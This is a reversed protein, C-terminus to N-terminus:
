GLYLFRETNTHALMDKEELSFAETEFFHGMYAGYSKVDQLNIMFDTGYIVHEMIVRREQEGYSDIFVKLKEYFKRDVGQYSIDTYLNPYKGSLILEVIKRQWAKSDAGGFHALNLRLGPYERLVLEWRSPDSFASYRSDVLFGGPSCHATIPITHAICFEYLYRVKEMEGEPNGAGEEVPWPNFGLPPYVKIGMFHYPTISAISGDFDSWDVAELRARRMQPTTDQHFAAFNKELLDELSMSRPNRGSHMRMSYNRTNIGMFPYIRFLPSTHAYASAIWKERHCYYDRIGLFLDEVQAVVPKWRVKYVSSSLGDGKLGFDMILPTLVMREYEVKRGNMVVTCGDHLSFRNRLEEEMQILCDGIDTEMIALLNMVNGLKNQLVSVMKKRVGPLLFVVFVVVLAMAIWLALTAFAEIFTQGALVVIGLWLGTLIFVGWLLIVLLQPRLVEFYIRRIIASLNPHSLNMMHCHADYFCAM